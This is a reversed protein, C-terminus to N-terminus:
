VLTIEPCVPTSLPALDLMRRAHFVFLLWPYNLDGSDDHAWEQTLPILGRKVLRECSKYAPDNSCFRSKYRETPERYLVTELVDNDKVYNITLSGDHHDVARVVDRARHAEASRVATFHFGNPGHYELVLMDGFYVHGGDPHMEM